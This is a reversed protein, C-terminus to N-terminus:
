FFLLLSFGSLGKLHDFRTLLLFTRNLVLTLVCGGRIVFTQIKLYKKFKWGRKVNSYIEVNVHM